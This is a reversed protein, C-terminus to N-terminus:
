VGPALQDRPFREPGRFGYADVFADAAAEDFRPCKALVGKQEGPTPDNGQYEATWASFAVQDNLAPLPAVIIGNPDDRWWSRMEEVQAEPIDAGYQVVVGGHELNHIVFGDDIPEDYIGFPAWNEYHRGDTPPFRDDDLDEGEDVHEAEGVEYTGFVCGADVLETGADGVEDTLDEDAEPPTVERIKVPADPDTKKSSTGDDGGCGTAVLAAALVTLLLFSSRMASM